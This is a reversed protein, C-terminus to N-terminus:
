KPLYKGTLKKRPFNKANKALMLSKLTIEAIRVSTWNKPVNSIIKYGSIKDLGIKNRSLLKDIKELLLRSLSNDDKWALVDRREKDSSLRLLVKSKKIELELNVLKGM